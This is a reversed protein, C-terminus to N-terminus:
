GNNWGHGTWPTVHSEDNTFDPSTKSDGSSLASGTDNIYYATMFQLDNVGDEIYGEINVSWYVGETVWDADHGDANCGGVIAISGAPMGTGFWSGINAPTATTNGYSPGTAPTPTANDLTILGVAAATPTSTNWNVEVNATSATVSALEVYYLDVRVTEGGGGYGSGKSWTATEGAVTSSTPQLPGSGKQFVFLVGARNGTDTGISLSSFTHPDSPSASTGSASQHLALPGISGATNVAQFRAPLILTM